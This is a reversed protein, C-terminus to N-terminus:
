ATTSNILITDNSANWKVSAGLAETIFRLPVITKAQNYRPAESVQKAKGNITTQTKNIELTISTKGKSISIKGADYNVKAGMSQFVDRLPVFTTGNIIVPDASLKVFNDNLMISFSKVVAAPMIESVTKPPASGQSISWYKGTGWSWVTGKRDLALGSNPARAEIAVIQSLSKLQHLSGNEENNWVTGNQQLALNYNSNYPAASIAKFGNMPKASSPEYYGVSGDKRLLFVNGMDDNYMESVSSINKTAWPLTDEGMRGNNWYGWRNVSGDARVISLNNPSAAIATIDSRKILGPSYANAEDTNEDYTRCYSENFTFDSRTMASLCVNGWIWASGEKTLAVHFSDGSAIAVIDKLGKVQAPERSVNTKLKDIMGNGLQGWENTGWTWVTGDAKLAINGVEAAIAGPIKPGRQAQDNGKWTWITGDKELALHSELMSDIDIIGTLAIGRLTVDQKAFVTNTQLTCVALLLLTLGTWKKLPRM